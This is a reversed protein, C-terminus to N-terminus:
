NIVLEVYMSRSDQGDYTGIEPHSYLSYYFLLKRMIKFIKWCKNEKCSIYYLFFIRIQNELNFLHNQTNCEHRHM